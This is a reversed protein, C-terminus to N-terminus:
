QPPHIKLIQPIAREARELAEGWSGGSDQSRQAVFFYQMAADTMMDPYQRRLREIADDSGHQRTEGALDLAVGILCGTLTCPEGAVVPSESFSKQTGVPVPEYMCTRWGGPNYVFDPGRTAVAAALLERAQELDIM